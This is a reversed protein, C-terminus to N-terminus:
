GGRHTQLENLQNGALFDSSVEEDGTEENETKLPYGGVVLVVMVDDRKYSVCGHMYRPKNM